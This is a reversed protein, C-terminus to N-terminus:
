ATGAPVRRRIQRDSGPMSQDRAEIREHDDPHIGDVFNAIPAGIAALEPAVSYLQAFKANAYVRDNVIDWDWTGIAGSASLALEYREESARLAQEAQTRKTTEVATVFIGGIGNVATEDHVPSYSLTFRADDWQAGHRQIRLLMDEAFIAPRQGRLIATHLPEVQDWVEPWAERAARGLAWPHKDGLIAKYGDNYILIFDPGWRLAM